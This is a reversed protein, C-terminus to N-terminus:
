TSKVWIVWSDVTGFLCTNRTIAERVIPVNDILWRLKLASFYPHIPLGSIEQLCDRKGQGKGNIFTEALDATRNDLWVTLAHM